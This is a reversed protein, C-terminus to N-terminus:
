PRPDAPLRPASAPPSARIPDTSATRVRPPTIARHAAALRGRAVNLFTWVQAFSRKKRDGIGTAALAFHCTARRHDSGSVRSGLAASPLIVNPSGPLLM